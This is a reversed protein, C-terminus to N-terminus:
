PAFLSERKPMFLPFTTFCKCFICNKQAFLENKSLSESLNPTFWERWEKKLAVIAIGEHNSKQLSLHSQNARPQEKTFLLLLSERMTTRKSVADLAFWERCSKLILLKSCFLSSCILSLVFEWGQRKVKTPCTRKGLHIPYKSSPQYIFFLLFNYKHPCIFFIHNNIGQFKQSYKLSHESDGRGKFIRIVCIHFKGM